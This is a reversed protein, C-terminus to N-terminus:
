LIGIKNLLGLVILVGIITWLIKKKVHSPVRRKNWRNPDFSVSGDRTKRTRRTQWRSYPTVNALVLPALALGGIFGFIHGQVNINARVFTMVLGIIFIVLIIQASSQDILDKRFLVMYIYLGFLGYIAGSAGVHAYLIDSSGFFFTGLNGIIGAGLYAVLFKFKGLMQELAPGFLVLSFSNFLVHMLGGHLFMPTILRWYEGQHIYYNSGIGFQYITEGIPLHLFDIILWLGLYIIVLTSVIPYFQM